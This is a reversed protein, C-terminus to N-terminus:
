CSGNAVVLALGYAAVGIGILAAIIKRALQSQGRLSWVAVAAVGVAVLAVAIKAAM